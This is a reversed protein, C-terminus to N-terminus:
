LTQNRNEKLYPLSQYFRLKGFPSKMSFGLGTSMRLRRSDMYSKDQYDLGSLAAYDVFLSGKIGSHDYLKPIPFDLQGTGHFYFKGGLSYQAKTGIDRPGIGSLDFGRIENSGKFFHQSLNLKEDTYSFNYGVGVKVSLTINDDIKSLLSRTSFFLFESKIYNLDGGPLGAVDQSFRSLYGNKPEYLNDLKNYSLTYGVASIKKEGKQAKVLISASDSVNYINNYKYFYRLSLILDDIVKYSLKTMIGSNSSSFSSNPKDQSEHFASIGLSTDSNNFNNETIGIDILSSQSSKNFICSLEKGTGFLNREKLEINILGGGPYSIGGSAFINGTKKEKVNLHFDVTDDRIKYSNIKVSEFFDTNELRRRAKKIELTNYQDGEAINLKSRIVHDLTRNNGDIIINNVYIRSGPSIKYNVDIVNEHQEYEVDVEAFVYGKDNLFKHMRDLINTIKLRNFVKGNNEEVLNLIEVNLNHDQIDANVNVNNKGFLYQRGEKILFLVKIRNNGSNDIEIIPQVDNDVYGHSSYFSDIMETKILLYQPLHNNVGNFIASFLKSFLNNYQANIAKKLEGESFNKNGIFRVNKVKYTKGENIKFILNARNKDLSILEYEIKADMKGSNRYMNILNIMDNQLKAYNLINLPRSKIVNTMLDKDNFLKNGKILLKSILANEQLMVKLNQKDDIHIDVDKFLGTSYLNKLVGDLVDDDIYDGSKLTVYLSLTQNSVRENGIYIIDKIKMREIVQASLFNCSFLFFVLVYFTQQM